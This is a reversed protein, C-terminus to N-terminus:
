TSTSATTMPWPRVPTMIALSNVMAPNVTTPRPPPVTSHDNKPHWRPLRPVDPDLKDWDYGRANFLVISPQFGSADDLTGVYIGILDPQSEPQNYIPSGCASRATIPM